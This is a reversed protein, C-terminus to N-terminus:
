IELLWNQAFFSFEYFDIVCDDNLDLEATEECNDNLWFGLFEDLDYMDVKNDYTLDGYLWEADAAQVVLGIIAQRNVNSNTVSPTEDAGTAFKYGAAGTSSTMDQELAKTFGNNFTYDSTNGCTAADIVMDGDGTSLAVTTIPNPTSTASSNEATAGVSDAQDVNQLFVSNYAVNDPSTSWTPAFTNSTAAALGAEDLVYAAVYAQYSTGAATDIVKTMPQGGYTVSTLNIDGAEEAHAIFVLARSTGTEETHTLGSTWSGIIEVDTGPLQPVASVEGSDASENAALDVATVVYYYTIGNNVSNDTYDSSGLLSVNLLSYGSGSTTSRYVNYGDIDGESNDSWNLSVTRNGPATTLGTPAAPPADVPTAYVEGSDESENESTDVATVIYYYTTGNAATNDTYDSNELLTSGNLKTRTGGSTLSRYINYGDLDGEGNDNWNLSISADGATAALGTPADPPTTDPIAEPTASVEGSDASENSSTDVATVVYYYTTGNTVTNDIYDSSTLLAGNLKTQSGGSTLSRYINYGNLDGESNDNWNLSVVADGATAALGTPAAPANIDGPGWGVIIDKVLLGSQTLDSDTWGGTTSAGPVLASANEDKDNLAWNCHSIDNAALFDMWQNTSTVDVSGGGSADCTGWETVMLAIGNNLATTAKDRLSQKHTAAYFHLTYAINSYGTIPNLSAVDVDQSWTPSGVIILNDPDIARIASIVAEAYPKVDGSWSATNLPENY